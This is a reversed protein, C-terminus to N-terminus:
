DLIKRRRSENENVTTENLKECIQNKLLMTFSGAVIFFHFISELNQFFYWRIRHSLRIVVSVTLLIYSLERITQASEMSSSFGLAYSHFLNGL